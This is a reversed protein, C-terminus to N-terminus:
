RLARPYAKHPPIDGALGGEAAGPRLGPRCLPAEGVAELVVVEADRLVKSASSTIITM